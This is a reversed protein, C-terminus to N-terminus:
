KYFDIRISSLAPTGGGGASVVLNGGVTWTASISMNYSCNFGCSSVSPSNAHANAIMFGRINQGSGNDVTANITAWSAGAPIATTAASSSSIWRDTAVTTDVYSKSTADTTEVPTTTATIQGTTTYRVLRSSSAVTSTADLETLFKNSTSPSGFSGVLANNEDQSPVRTDNDGVVVPNTSSAPATSVKAIGQVTASMIPSGAIATDDVYKKDIISTDSTFTPHSNYNLINPVTEDGNLIRSLILLQPADTIKVSAGRRHTKQLSAVTSTGNLISLGRTMSSCATAICTASVFEESATGEDIIFAYTGTALTNGEKTTASVLTMSTASSTISNALSTEFLAVSVPIVAGLNQEQFKEPTIGLLGTLVLVPTIIVSVIKTFFINM